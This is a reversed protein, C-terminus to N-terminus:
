RLRRLSPWRLCTYATSTLFRSLIMTPLLLGYFHTTAISLPNCCAEIGTDPRPAPYRERVVWIFIFSIRNSCMCCVPSTQNGTLIWADGPTSFVHKVSSVVATYGCLCSGHHRTIASLPKTLKSSYTKCVSLCNYPYDFSHQRAYSFWINSPMIVTSASDDQPICKSPTVFTM